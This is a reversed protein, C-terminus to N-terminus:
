SFTVTCTKGVFNITVITIACSLVNISPCHHCTKKTHWICSHYLVKPEIQFMANYTRRNSFHEVSALLWLLSLLVYERVTQWRVIHSTCYLVTYRNPHTLDAFVEPKMSFNCAGAYAPIMRYLATGYLVKELWRKSKGRLNSYAVYINNDDNLKM